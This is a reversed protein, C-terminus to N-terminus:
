TIIRAIVVMVISILFLAGALIWDFNSLPPIEIGKSELFAIRYFLEQEAQENMGTKGSLEKSIEAKLEEM